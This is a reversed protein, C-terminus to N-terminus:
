RMILEPTLYSFLSATPSNTAILKPKRQVNTGDRPDPPTQRTKAFTDPNMGGDHGM